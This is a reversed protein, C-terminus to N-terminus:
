HMTLDRPIRNPAISWLANMKVAKEAHVRAHEAVSAMAHHEERLRLHRVSKSAAIQSPYTVALSIVCIQLARACAYACAFCVMRTNMPLRRSAYSQPCSPATGTMRPSAITRIQIGHFSGLWLRQRCRERFDKMIVVGTALFRNRGHM